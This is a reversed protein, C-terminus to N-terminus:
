QTTLRDGIHDIFRNPSVILTQHFKTFPFHKTNGTILYDANAALACELFKNDGPDISIIDVPQSPVVWLARERITKLLVNVRIPNFYKFKNRALVAGYEDFISESICLQTLHMEESLTMSLIIDPKSFPKHIASIIINTDLVIKLM